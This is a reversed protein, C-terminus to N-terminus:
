GVRIIRVFRVRSLRPGHGVFGLDSAQNRLHDEGDSDFCDQGPDRAPQLVSPGARVAARPMGTVPRHATEKTGDDVLETSLTCVPHGQSAETDPRCDVPHDVILDISRTVGPLDRDGLL